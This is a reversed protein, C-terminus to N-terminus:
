ELYASYSLREPSWDKLVPLMAAAEARAQPLDHALYNGCEPASAGPIDGMFSAMFEVSDRCLEIAQEHTLGRTLLYFGTGCGMPGVYIM